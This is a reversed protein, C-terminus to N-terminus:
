TLGGSHHLIRLPQIPLLWALVVPTESGTHKWEVITYVVNFYEGNDVYVSM